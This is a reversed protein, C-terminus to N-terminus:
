LFEKRTDKVPVDIKHQFFFLIFFSFCLLLYLILVMFTVQFSCNNIRKERICMESNRFKRAEANVFPIIVAYLCLYVYLGIMGIFKQTDSYNLYIKQDAIEVLCM